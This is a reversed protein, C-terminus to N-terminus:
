APRSSEILATTSPGAAAVSAVAKADASAVAKAATSAVSDSSPAPQQGQPAPATFQRSREPARATPPVVSPPVVSPRVVSPRVVSPAACVYTHGTPTTTQVVHRGLGMPDSITKASWGPATKAQNCRECLGQGNDVDTAGGRAHELAHDVHRIPAGCFPTRCYRDRALFLRRMAPPFFRARADLAVVQGNIPDTLLRRIWAKGNADLSDRLWARATEAPIPGYGVLFAPERAAAERAAAERAGERGAAERAAAERAGERGAAERAGSERAGSERAGSERAAVGTAASEPIIGEGTSDSDIVPSDTAADANTDDDNAADANTDDDNAADANTDDDNAADANTDDANTDEENAAETKHGEENAADTNADDAALTGDTMILQIELPIEGAHEAGTLRATLCDAMVQGRSRPDGAARAADAAARLAALCAVGQRVPLYASLIAMTDPAPRLSVYRESEAHKGRRIPVTPDVRYAAQAAAARVARSSMATIDTPGKGSGPQWSNLMSDVEARGAADLLAVEAAILGARYESLEGAVFRMMTAPMDVCLTKAQTLLSAARTPSERRALAIQEAVGRGQRKAPVGAAAQAQREAADFWVELRAQRACVVNKLSELSALEEIVAARSMEGVPTDILRRMWASVEMPLGSGARAESSHEVRTM